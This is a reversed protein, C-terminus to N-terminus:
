FQFIKRFRMILDSLCATGIQTSHQIINSTNIHLESVLVQYYTPQAKNTYTDIGASHYNINATDRTQLNSVSIRDMLKM